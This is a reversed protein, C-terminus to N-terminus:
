KFTKNLQKFIFKPAFRSMKKLGNSQGVTIELENKVFSKKFAQILKETSIPNFKKYDETMETAVLPPMLEFVHIKRKDLQFRLSRTWSHLAAKTACYVPAASLPVFALGSSVNIIAPNIAKELVPMFATVMRIPGNLNIDVEQLQGEVALNGGSYNVENFVGANNVLVNIGGEAKVRALLGQIDDAKTVDAVHYALGPLKDCAQQLKAENRGTIIVDSGNEIFAKAMELGIGSGGGTILVKNNSLNM